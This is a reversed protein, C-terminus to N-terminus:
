NGTGFCGCAGGDDGVDATHQDENIGCLGTDIRRGRLLACVVGLSRGLASEVSKWRLACQSQGRAAPEVKWGVHLENEHGSEEQKLHPLDLIKL